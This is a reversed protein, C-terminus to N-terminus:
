APRVEKVRNIYRDLEEPFLKLLSAPFAVAADSLVCITTGAMQTQMDAIMKLDGETGGGEKIRTFVRELWHTGERCPTCQGCSEHSYFRAWYLAVDVLDVTDDYVIVAATGLLSGAAAVSEFDMPVDLHDPTLMPTSSGGPQVAKLKRGPRLGGAIEIVDRLKVGMPLEYNGPRQVCGSVTFIKPGCSKPNDPNATIKTYWEWGNKIIHPVNSITEVNNIITPCGYLGVVAPFPPKVRPEGRRGELSNLLASEEGCIYASAGRHVTIEQSFGTGLINQGVYGKRRADEIAKMLIEAGRKFEGRIYIFSQTIRNAYATILIGEILQHPNAYILTRNNCTGPESEDANVTLYRPRGDNPLFSWKVGAPFGAGGRGRLNAKKVEEVIAQPEMALAKRLAQYGGQAEYVDINTLDVKGIGKTLVPEFQIM